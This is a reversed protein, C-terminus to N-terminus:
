GAIDARKFRGDADMEVVIGHGGFLEGDRHHFEASGDDDVIIDELEMRQKFEDASVKPEDEGRWTHNKLELLDRVACEKAARCRDAIKDAIRVAHSLAPPEGSVRWCPIRLDVPRGGVSVKGSYWDLDEDYELRGLAPHDIDSRSGM